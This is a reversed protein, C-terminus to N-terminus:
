HFHSQYQFISAVNFFGSFSMLTRFLSHCVTMENRTEGGVNRSPATHYRRRWRVSLSLSTGVDTTGEASLRPAWGQKSYMCATCSNRSPRMKCMVLYISACFDPKADTYFDVTISLAKRAGHVLKASNEDELLSKKVHSHASFPSQILLGIYAHLYMACIASMLLDFRNTAAMGLVHRDM